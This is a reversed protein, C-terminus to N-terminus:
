EQKEDDEEVRKENAIAKQLSDEEERLLKVSAKGETIDRIYTNCSNHGYLSTLIIGNNYDDLLTFAFSMGGKIDDYADFNVIATKKLMTKLQAECGSIRNELMVGSSSDVTKAIVDIKDYYDKVAALLNGDESYELFAGIKLSNSISLILCIIVLAFIIALIVFNLINTTLM